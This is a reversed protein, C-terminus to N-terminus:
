NVTIGSAATLTLTSAEITLPQYSSGALDLSQIFASGSSYPYWLLKGSEARLDLAAVDDEVSVTQVASFTNAANKLPVNSSLRADALTGTTFSAMDANYLAVNSSLFGDPIETIWELASDSD